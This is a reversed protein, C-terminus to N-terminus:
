AKAKTKIEALAANFGQSTLSSGSVRSLSVADIQKGVVESKYGSIFQSQYRGSTGGGAATTTSDTIVGNKLTVSVEISSTGGPNSYAGTASYTGDKYESDASETTTPETTTSEQATPTTTAAEEKKGSTLVVGIGIAAVIVLLGAVALVKQNKSVDQNM